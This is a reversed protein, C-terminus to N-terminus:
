YVGSLAVSHWFGSAIDIRRIGELAEIVSPTSSADGVALVERGLQGRSLFIFCCKYSYFM